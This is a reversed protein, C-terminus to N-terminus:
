TYLGEGEEFRRAFLEKDEASLREEVINLCSAVGVIEAEDSKKSESRKRWETIANGDIVKSYDVANRDFPVMAPDCNRYSRSQCTWSKGAEKTIVPPEKQLLWIDLNCWVQRTVIIEYCLWM